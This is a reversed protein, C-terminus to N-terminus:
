LPRIHLITTHPREDGNQRGEHQRECEHMRGKLMDMLMLLIVMMRVGPKEVDMKVVFFCRSRSPFNAMDIRVVIGEELGPVGVYRV